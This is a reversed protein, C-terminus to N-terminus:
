TFSFCPALFSIVTKAAIVSAIVPVLINKLCVVVNDTFM